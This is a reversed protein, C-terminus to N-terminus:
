PQWLKTSKHTIPMHAGENICSCQYFQYPCPQLAEKPPFCSAKLLTIKGQSLKGSQMIFTNTFIFNFAFGLISLGYIMQKTQPPFILSFIISKRHNWFKLFPCKFYINKSIETIFAIKM